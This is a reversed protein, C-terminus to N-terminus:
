SLGGGAANGSLHAGAQAVDDFFKFMTHLNTIQFVRYLKDRIGALVVVTGAKDAKQRMTLLVGLAQSSMFRVGEFDLVVRRGSKEVVDYLQRGIKQITVSDLMAGAPFGVRTVGASEDVRLQPESM